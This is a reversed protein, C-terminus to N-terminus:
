GFIQVLLYVLSVVCMIWGVFPLVALVPLSTKKLFNESPNVPDYWVTNADKIKMKEIEAIKTTFAKEAGTFNIDYVTNGNYLQGGVLFTYTSELTKPFRINNHSLRADVINLTLTQLSAIQFKKIRKLVAKVRRGKYIAGVGIAFVFIAIFYNM